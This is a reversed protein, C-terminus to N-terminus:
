RSGQGAMARPPIQPSASQWGCTAHRGRAAQPMSAFADANVHVRPALADQRGLDIELDVFAGDDSTIQRGL